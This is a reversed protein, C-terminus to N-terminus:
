VIIEITLKVSVCVGVNDCMYERVSRYVRKMACELGLVNEITMEM